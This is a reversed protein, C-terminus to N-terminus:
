RIKAGSFSNIKDSGSDGYITVSGSHNEYLVIEVTDGAALILHCSFSSYITAASTAYLNNAGFVDSGNVQLMIVASDGSTLGGCGLRATFIYVGDVPVTFIGTATDYNGSFDYQEVDYVITDTTNYSTNADLYASFAPEVAEVFVSDWWLAEATADKGFVPRAFAANAPATVRGEKFEWTDAADVPAGLVPSYSLWTDSSNYWSVGLVGSVSTDDGNVWGSVRLIDGVAVPTGVIQVLETAQANAMFKIASDGTKFRTTDHDVDTGWTGANMSYGVPPNPQTMEDGIGCCTQTLISLL